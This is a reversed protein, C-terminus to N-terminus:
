RLIVLSIFIKVLFLAHEMCIMFWFMKIRGKFDLGRDTLTGLKGWEEEKGQGGEEESLSGQEATSSVNAFLHGVSGKGRPDLHPFYSFTNLPQKHGLQKRLSFSSLGLILINVMMGGYAIVKLAEVWVRVGKVHNIPPRQCYRVLKAADVRVENINCVWALLPAAPFAGSFIGLFGFQVM